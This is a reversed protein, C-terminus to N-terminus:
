PCHSNTGSLPHQRGTSAGRIILCSQVRCESIGRSGLSVVAVAYSMVGQRWPTPAPRTLARGECCVCLVICFSYCIQTLAGRRPVALVHTLRANAACTLVKVGAGDSFRREHGPFLLFYEAMQCQQMYRLSSFCEWEGWTHFKCVYVPM